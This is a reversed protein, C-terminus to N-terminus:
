GTRRVERLVGALTRRLDYVQDLLHLAVAVGEDNVGLDNRLEVILRARAVDIEAFVLEPEVQPPILWGTEVWTEVVPRELRTRTCFEVISIV